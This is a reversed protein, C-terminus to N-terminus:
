AIEQLPKRACWPPARRRQLRRPSTAPHYKSVVVALYDGFELVGVIRVEGLNQVCDSLLESVIRGDGGHSDPVADSAKGDTVNCQDGGHCAGVSRWREVVARPVDFQNLRTQRDPLALDEVVTGLFPDVTRLRSRRPGEHGTRPALGQVQKEVSGVEEVLGGVSGHLARHQVHVEVPQAGPARLDGLCCELGLHGLGPGVALRKPKRGIKPSAGVPCRAAIRVRERGPGANVVDSGQARIQLRRM